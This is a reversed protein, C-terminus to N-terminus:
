HIGGEPRFIHFVRLIDNGEFFVDKGFHALNEAENKKESEADFVSPLCTTL